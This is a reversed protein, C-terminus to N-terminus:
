NVPEHRVASNVSQYSPVGIVTADQPLLPQRPDQARTPKATCFDIFTNLHVQIQILLIALFISLATDGAFARSNDANDIAAAISMGLGLSILITTPGTALIVPINCAPMRAIILCFLNLGLVM